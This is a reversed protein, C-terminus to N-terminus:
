HTRLHHLNHPFLFSLLKSLLIPRTLPGDLCNRSSLPLAPSSINAPYACRPHHHNSPSPLGTDPTLLPQLTAGMNWADEWSVEWVVTESVSKCHWSFVESAPLCLYKHLGTKWCFPVTWTSIKKLVPFYFNWIIKKQLFACYLLLSAFTKKWTKVNIFQRGM